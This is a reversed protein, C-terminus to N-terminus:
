NVIEIVTELKDFLCKEFKFVDGNKDYYFNFRDKTTITNFISAVQGRANYTVTYSYPLNSCISCGSYAFNILRGINDYTYTNEWNTPSGRKTNPNSWVCVKTNKKRRDIFKEPLYYPSSFHRRFFYIDITEQIVKITDNTQKYLNGNIFEAKRFVKVKGTQALSSLSFVTTVAIVFARMRNSIVHDRASSLQSM